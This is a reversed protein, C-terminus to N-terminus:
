RRAERQACYARWGGHHSVDEAGALAVSECLFGQVQRGDDLSLTGICLPSPVGRVFRGYAEASMAWVELEISCGGETVRVLGPRPPTTGPLAYLRYCAATAGTRRLTAGLSTLQGNLPM